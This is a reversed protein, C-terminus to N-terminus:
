QSGLLWEELRGPVRLQRPGKHERIAEVAVKAKLSPSYNKGKKQGVKPDM